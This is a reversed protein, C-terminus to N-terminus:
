NDFVPSRLRGGSPAAMVMYERKELGVAKSRLVCFGIGRWAFFSVKDVDIKRKDIDVPPSIGLKATAHTQIFAILDMVFDRQNFRTNVVHFEAPLARLTLMILDHSTRSHSEKPIPEWPPATAYGDAWMAELITAPIEEASIPPMSILHGQFALESHSYNTFM